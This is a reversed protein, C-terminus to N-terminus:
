RGVAQSKSDSEVEVKRDLKKVNKGRNFKYSYSFQIYNSANFGIINRSNYATTETETRNLRVDTSMPLFWFVGFSHNKLQKQGGFGYFPVSYTVKLM